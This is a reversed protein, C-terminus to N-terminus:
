NSAPSEPEFRNEDFAYSQLKKIDLPREETIVELMIRCINPDDITFDALRQKRAFPRHNQQNNRDRKEKKYDLSSARKGTPLAYDRGM